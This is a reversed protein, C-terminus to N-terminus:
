RLEMTEALCAGRPPYLTSLVTVLVIGMFLSVTAVACAEKM